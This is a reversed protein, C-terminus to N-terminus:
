GESSDRAGLFRLVAPDASTIRDVEEGGDCQYLGVTVSNARRVLVRWIAGADQWRQLVSVPNSWEADGSVDGSM